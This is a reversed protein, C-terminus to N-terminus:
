LIIDFHFNMGGGKRGAKTDLNRNPLTGAVLYVVVFRRYNCKDLGFGGGDVGIVPAETILFAIVFNLKVEVVYVALVM